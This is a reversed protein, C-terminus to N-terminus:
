FTEGPLFLVVFEPTYELQEWYGKAGLKTLHSRVLRAHDKLKASRTVEDATELSEYYAGIPAKSDVVICRENPLRVILDPRLRGEDGELTPQESFDCFNLMGALEVVRRLQIEGWRGRVAPSRLANVLRSTEAQLQTQSSALQKVQEHLSSYASARLSELERIKTDVKDLSDRLPVLLEGISKQRNDLDASAAKQLAALSERAQNLFIESNDKLANASLAAFSEALKQKADEIVLLKEASLKREQDVQVELAGARVGLSSNESRLDTLEADKRDIEAKLDRVSQDKNQLREVLTAREAQFGTNARGYES